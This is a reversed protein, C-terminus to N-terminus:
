VVSGHCLSACRLAGCPVAQLLEHAGRVSGAVSDLVGLEGGRHDSSCMTSSRKMEDAAVVAICCRCFCRRVQVMSLGVKMLGARLLCGFWLVARLGVGRSLM